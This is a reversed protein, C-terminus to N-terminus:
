EPAFLVERYPVAAGFLFLQHQSYSVIRATVTLLCIGSRSKCVLLLTILLVQPRVISIFCCLCHTVAMVQQDTAILLAGQNQNEVVVNGSERCYTGLAAIRGM